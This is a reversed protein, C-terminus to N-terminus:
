ALLKTKLVPLGNDGVLPIYVVACRCNVVEAASLSLDGPFMAQEGGVVFTEEVEVTQTDADIHTRRTNMDLVAMWQKGVEYDSVVAGLGAGYNAAATSETRAIRLARIRNFDPDNLKDVMFSAQQSVPLDQSQDMLNMVQDQTTKTVEKIRKGGQTHYFLSMLKRWHESFFAPADKQEIEDYAKRQTAIKEIKGYMWSAQQTGVRMYCRLYAEKMPQASVLVSLHTQLNSVGHQNIFDIVPATQKDLAVKFKPYQSREYSHHLQKWERIYLAKNFQSITM